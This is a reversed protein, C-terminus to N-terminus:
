CVLGEVTGKLLTHMLHPGQLYACARFVVGERCGEATRSLPKPKHMAAPILVPPADSGDHVPSGHHLDNYGIPVGAGGELVLTGKIHHVIAQTGSSVGQLQAAVAQAVDLVKIAHNVVGFTRATRANCNCAFNASTTSPLSEYLQTM